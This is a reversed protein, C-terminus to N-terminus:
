LFLFRYIFLSLSLSDVTKVPNLIKQYARLFTHLQSFSHTQPPIRKSCYLSLFHRLLWVYNIGFGNSRLHLRQRM